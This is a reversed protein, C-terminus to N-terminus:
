PSTVPQGALWQQLQFHRPSRPLGPPINLNRLLFGTPQVSRTGNPGPKEFLLPDSALFELFYRQLATLEEPTAPTFQGSPFLRERLSDLALGMVRSNGLPLLASTVKEVQTRDPPMAPQAWLELILYASGVGHGASAAGGPAMAGEPLLSVLFRMPAGAEPDRTCAATAAACQRFLDPDAQWQTIREEIADDLETKRGLKALSFLIDARVSDSQEKDWQSLLAAAVNSTPFPLVALAAVVTSRIKEVPSDLVPRVDDWREVMFSRVDDIHDNPSEIQLAMSIEVLWDVMFFHAPHEPDALLPFVRELTPVTAECVSRQYLMRIWLEHEAASAEEATRADLLQQIHEPLDEATGYAHRLEGWAVPRPSGAPISAVLAVTGLPGVKQGLGSLTM